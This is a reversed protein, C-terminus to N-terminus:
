QREFLKITTLAPFLQEVPNEMTQGGMGQQAEKQIGGLMAASIAGQSLQNWNNVVQQIFFDLWVKTNVTSKFLKKLLRQIQRQHSSFTFLKQDAQQLYRYTLMVDNCRHQFVLKPLNASQLRSCSTQSCLGNVYRGIKGFKKWNHFFFFFCQAKAIRSKLMKVAGVMKVLLVVLTLLATWRVFCKTVRHWRKM